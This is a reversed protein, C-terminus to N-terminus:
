WRDRGVRISLVRFWRGAVFVFLAACAFAVAARAPDHPVADFWDRVDHWVEPVLLARGGGAQPPVRGTLTVVLTFALMLFALTVGLAGVVFAVLHPAQRNHQEEHYVWPPPLPRVTALVRETLDPADHATLHAAHHPQWGRTGAAIRQCAPCSELHAALLSEEAGDLPADNAHVLLDRAQTCRM